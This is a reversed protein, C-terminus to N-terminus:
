RWVLTYRRGMKTDREKQRPSFSSYGFTRRNANEQVQYFVSECKKDVFFLMAGDGELVHLPHKHRRDAEVTIYLHQIKIIIKRCM